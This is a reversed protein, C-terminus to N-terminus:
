AKDAQLKDALRARQEKETGDTSLGSNTLAEKVEDDSLGKVTEFVDQDWKGGSGKSSKSESRSGGHLDENQAIVEKGWSFQKFYAKEDDTFARSQDVVRSM